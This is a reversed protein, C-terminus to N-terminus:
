VGVHSLRRTRNRHCTKTKTEKHTIRVRVADPLTTAVRHALPTPNLMNELSLQQLSICASRPARLNLQPRKPLALANACM